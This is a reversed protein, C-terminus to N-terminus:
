MIPQVMHFQWKNFVFNNFTLLKLKHQIYLVYLEPKPLLSQWGLAWADDTKIFLTKNSYLWM